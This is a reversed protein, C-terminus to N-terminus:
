RVDTSSWRGDGAGHFVHSTHPYFRPTGQQETQSQRAANRVAAAVVRAPVGARLIRRARDVQVELERWAYADPFDLIADRASPELHRMSRDIQGSRAGAYRRQDATQG